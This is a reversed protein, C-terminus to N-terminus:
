LSVGKEECWRLIVYLTWVHLWHVNPDRNQFRNWIGRVTDARLGAREPAINTGNLFSAVKSSLDRRLWQNWPFWFLGKPRYVVERPLQGGMTKVLLHKNVRHDIKERGPISAVFELLRHDLLPVRVELSHAMSFVDLDRLLTNMLYCHIEMQSVQDVVHSALEDKGLAQRIYDAGTVTSPFELADKRIKDWFISRVHAYANYTSADGSAVYDWFCQLRTSYGEFPSLGWAVSRRICKPIWSLRSVRPVHRFSPYGAFLEDGGQGSLAVTVGSQRAIGSVFYSNIGDNTPQDMNLFAKDLRDLLDSPRVLVTKHDCGFRYAVEAAYKGERYSGEEFDLCFTRPRNRSSAAMMGVVVSSDVGGSLFAGLPVDSLLRDRVATRVCGSIKEQTDNNMEIKRQDTFFESLSWYQRIELIDGSANVRMWHGPLLLMANKLITRPAQVAGFALYSEVSEPDLHKSVLNGALLANLESAFAFLGPKQIYYLPKIGVRDRVLFLEQKQADWIAFAYMGVLHDVITEGLERYAVLLTETDCTSRYKQESLRKRFEQHNYIEGNFVIVNKSVPDWMPQHGAESLDLISLRRHGFGLRGEAIPIIEIGSDDPGRHRMAETAKVLSSEDWSSGLIGVIGCV